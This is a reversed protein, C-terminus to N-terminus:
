TLSRLFQELIICASAADADRAGSSLAETTSYREDVEFVQLNFRGRMQRAFKQARRTNEHPAGDPHYPVGVVLADPQWEKIRAEVQAFRADAGEAKITAQPTATGLLRNGSAVGTRKLGYDFALFTQFHAPVAAPVSSSASAAPAPADPM